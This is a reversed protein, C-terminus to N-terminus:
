SKKEWCGSPIVKGATAGPWVYAEVPRMVGPSSRHWCIEMREYFRPHGELKDLDEITSNGVEWLEGSAKSAREKNGLPLSFIHLGPAGHLDILEACNVTCEGLFTNGPVGLKDNNCFGRKLTGYVFLLRSM